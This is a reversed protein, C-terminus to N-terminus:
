RDTFPLWDERQTSFLIGERSLVGPLNKTAIGKYKETEGSEELNSLNMTSQHPDNLSGHNLSTWVDPKLAWFHLVSVQNSLPLCHLEKAKMPTFLSASQRPDNPWLAFCFVFCVFFLSLIFVSDHLVRNKQRWWYSQLLLETTLSIHPQMYVSQFAWIDTKSHSSYLWQVELLKFNGGPSSLSFYRYNIQQTFKKKEKQQIAVAVGFRTVLSSIVM